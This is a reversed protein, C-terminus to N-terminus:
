RSAGNHRDRRPEKIGIGSHSWLPPRHCEALRVLKDRQDLTRPDFEEEVLRNVRPILVACTHCYERLLPLDAPSFFGSPRSQVISHWLSRAAPELAEPAGPVPPKDESGVVQLDAASRRGPKRAM